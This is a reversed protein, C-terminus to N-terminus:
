PIDFSFSYNSGIMVYMDSRLLRSKSQLADPNPLGRLSTELLCTMASPLVLEEEPVRTSASASRTSLSVLQMTVFGMECGLSVRGDQLPADRM